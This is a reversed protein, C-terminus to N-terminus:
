DLATDLFATGYAAVEDAATYADFHGGPLRVLTADPVRDAAAEVTAPPVVADDAAAVLLAPCAVSDADGLPRFRSFGLGSRAPAANEWDAGPPVADLFTRRAGPATVFATEGPDGVVPVPRGRGVRSGVADRLGAAALRAVTGTPLARVVARGDVVPVTAVVAAPDISDDPDADAGRSTRPSPDALPDAALALALGGGYSTGWLVLPDPERRRAYRAAARWDALQRAPSVLQRPRGASDGHGRYDFLFVAYGAAALREAVAPGGAVRPAAFGQAM